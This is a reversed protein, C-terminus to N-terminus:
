FIYLARGYVKSSVNVETNNVIKIDVGKPIIEAALFSPIMSVTILYIVKVTDDIGPNKSEINRIYIKPTLKFIKGTIENFLLPPMMSGVKTKAREIDLLYM